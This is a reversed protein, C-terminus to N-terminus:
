QFAAERLDPSVVLIGTDAPLEELPALTAKVKLNARALVRDLRRWTQLWEGPLWGLKYSVVVRKVLKPGDQASEVEPVDAEGEEPEIADPPVGTHYRATSSAWARSSAM